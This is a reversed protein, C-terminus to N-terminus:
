DSAARAVVVVVVTLGLFLMGWGLHVFAEGARSASFSILAFLLEIAGTGLLFISVVVFPMSAIAGFVDPRVERGLARAVRGHATAYRYWFVVGVVLLALTIAFATFLFPLPLLWDLVRSIGVVILGVVIALVNIAALRLGDTMTGGHPRLISRVRQYIPQPGGNFRQASDFQRHM